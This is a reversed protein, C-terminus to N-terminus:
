MYELITSVNKAYLNNSDFFSQMSLAKIICKAFITNSLDNISEFGSMSNM